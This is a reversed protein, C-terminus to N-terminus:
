TREPGSIAGAPKDPRAPASGLMYEGLWATLAAEPEAANRKIALDTEFLGRLMAELEAADYRRAAGVVREAGSPNGPRLRKTIEAAGFGGDVLERAITLDVLRGELAAMIRLVPEGVALARRLAEAARIPDRREVANAVANVSPPRTDSILAEVDAVEIPRYDAALALKRLEGDAVRTQESREVDNEWVGGIREALAAAAAPRIAIGLETAHRTVWGRLEDRRPALCREVVGGVAEVASELRKLLAPPRGVDRSPRLEALALAAGDPSQEVLALLRGTASGSTGAARLPQRVVVCHAGFLGVTAVELAARSLLAEDPTRDPVLVVRDAAGVRTVFTAVALDILYADDGHALLVSGSM